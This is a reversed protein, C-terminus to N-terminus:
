KELILHKPKDEVIERNENEMYWNPNEKLKKEKLNTHKYLDEYTTIKESNKFNGYHEKGLVDTIVLEGVESSVFYNSIVHVLFYIVEFSGTIIPFIDM